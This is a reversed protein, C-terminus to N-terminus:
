VHARGIEDVPIPPLRPDVPLNEILLYEGGLPSFFACLEDAISTALYDRALRISADRFALWASIDRYDPYRLRAADRAWQTRISDAVRLTPAIEARNSLMALSSAM